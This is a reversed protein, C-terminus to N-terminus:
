SHVQETLFSVARVDEALEKLHPLTTEADSFLLMLFESSRPDPSRGFKPRM